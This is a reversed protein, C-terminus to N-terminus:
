PEAETTRCTLAFVNLTVLGSPLVKMTVPTRGTLTGPGHTMVLIAYAAVAASVGSRPRGASSGPLRPQEWHEAMQEAQDAFARWRKIEAPYDMRGPQRALGARRELLVACDAASAQLARAARAMREHLLAARDATRAPGEQDEPLRSERPLGARIGRGHGALAQDRIGRILRDVEGAAAAVRDGAPGQGVISRASDLSLGIFFLRNVIYLAMTDALSATEGAPGREHSGPGATRGVPDGPGDDGLAGLRAAIAQGAVDAYLEMIRLDLAAPRHPRRFHTSVVGVLHGADDTLPTSQVARFGSAAAMGRHPAFGPDARVDAIVAQACQRAARGCGSHDDAVVAFYECFGQDFGSQTVLRLSGDAPDALQVTGFDAGTLSLAGDLVRPLLVALSPVDGLGGTVEDLRRMAQPADRSLRIGAAFHRARRAIVAGTVPLRAAAGRYVAEARELPGPLNQSESASVPMVQSHLRITCRRYGRGTLGRGPIQLPAGCSDVADAM